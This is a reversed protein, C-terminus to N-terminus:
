GNHETALMAEGNSLILEELLDFSMRFTGNLGYDLGWSNRCTATRSLTNVGYLLYAHGGEVIGTGQVMGMSDPDVMGTWWDTGLVVPGKNLVADVVDALTFGWHYAAILGRQTLMKGAARVSTGEYTPEEGAWEDNRQCEGYFETLDFYPTASPTASRHIVPGAHLWHASAYAVCQSTTGQNGQWPGKDWYRWARTPDAQFTARMPFRADREDVSLLRGLGRDATM